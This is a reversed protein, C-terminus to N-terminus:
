KCNNSYEVWMKMGAYYNTCTFTIYIHIFVPAHQRKVELSSQWAKSPAM